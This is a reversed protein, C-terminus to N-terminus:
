RGPSLRRQSDPSVSGNIIKIPYNDRHINKIINIYSHDEYKVSSSVLVLNGNEWQLSEHDISKWTM